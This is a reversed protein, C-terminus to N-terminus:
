LAELMRNLWVGRDDWSQGQIARAPIRPSSQSQILADVFAAKDDATHIYDRHPTLAPFTTATVPQGAALYELLKLPNCADIQANSKFPLMGVDWHQSYRPLQHHARAGLYYINSRKPLMQTDVNEPGIFLFDWEPLATAAYDILAYDLWASLSGYFGAVPRRPHLGPNPFDEAKAVPTTFLKTDVGHPLLHTKEAPFQAKLQESAALILDATEVLQHEHRSVTAHDVGALASFDDGCYYVVARPNIKQCMDVATPLSIWLIPDNLQLKELVPKLQYHMIERALQRALRSRPAPITLLNATTLNGQNDHGASFHSFRHDAAPNTRPLLKHCLRSLDRWNLRPQRLGISNIWLVKRDGAVTKILHQTSSPLGGWDEGFVILDHM